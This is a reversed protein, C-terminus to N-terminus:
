SVCPLVAMSWCEFIEIKLRHIFLSFNNGLKLKVTLLLQQYYVYFLDTRMEFEVYHIFYEM